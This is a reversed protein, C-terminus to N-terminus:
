PSNAYSAIEVSAERLERLAARVMVSAYGAMTSVTTVIYRAPTGDSVIAYDNRTPNRTQGGSFWPGANLAQETAFTDGQANSTIYYASVKNIEDDVWDQTAIIKEGSEVNPATLVGGSGSQIQFAEDNALIKKM